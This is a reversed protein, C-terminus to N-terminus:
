SENAKRIKYYYARRKCPRGNPGEETDHAPCTVTGMGPIHKGNDRTVNEYGKQSCPVEISLGDGYADAKGGAKGRYAAAPAPVPANNGSRKMGAQNGIGGSDMASEVDVVASESGTQYGQHKNGHQLGEALLNRNFLRRFCCYLLLSTARLFIVQLCRKSQESSMTIDARPTM